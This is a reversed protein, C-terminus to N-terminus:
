LAEVKAIADRLISHSCDNYGPRCSDWHAELDSMSKKARRYVEVLAMVTQPDALQTCLVSFSTWEGCSECEVATQTPENPTAKQAAEYLADIKSM